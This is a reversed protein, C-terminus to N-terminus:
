KKRPLAKQFINKGSSPRKFNIKERIHVKWFIKKEIEELGLGLDNITTGKYKFSLEDSVHGHGASAYHLM